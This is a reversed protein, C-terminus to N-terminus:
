IIRWIATKHKPCSGVAFRRGKKTVIKYKIITVGHKGKVCYGKLSKAAKKKKPAKSAKKKKTAKPM